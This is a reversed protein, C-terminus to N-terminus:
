RRLGECDSVSRPPAAAASPSRPPRWIMQKRDVDQGSQHFGLRLYLGRAPNGHMVDLTVPTGLADSRRLLDKILRTGIGQRRYGPILHIQRLHLRGVHEAVQMWGVTEEGVCVIRTQAQEYGNRFKLRLRRENWRGIKSLHRKAGDLYLAIAFAYDGPKAPRLRFEVARPEKGMNRGLRTKEAAAEIM